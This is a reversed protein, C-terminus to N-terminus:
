GFTLRQYSAIIARGPTLRPKATFSDQASAAGPITHRTLARLMTATISTVADIPAVTRISASPGSSCNTM